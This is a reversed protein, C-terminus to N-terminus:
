LIQNSSTMCETTIRESPKSLANSIGPFIDETYDDTEKTLNQNLRIMSSSNQMFERESQSNTRTMDRVCKM